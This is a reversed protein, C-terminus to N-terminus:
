RIVVPLYIVGNVFIPFTSSYGTYHVFIDAVSNNDNAVLNTANSYFTVFNGDDSIAVRFSSGDAETGDAAISTRITQGTQRDRVFIDRTANSDNNVLNTADSEFAVYRGNWSMAVYWSTDNGEINNSSLSVRTLSTAGPEDFIGDEDADRDHVFVDFSNNTDNFVLNSAVSDFAVYRGDGGIAPDYSHNNAQLGFVSLSVRVPNWGNSIFIDRMNNTDGSVLNTAASDFAVYFGNHSIAPSTSSANGIQNSDNVSIDQTFNSSHTFVDWTSNTDNSVLNSAASDFAVELGDRAVSPETSVNNGEECDGFQESSVSSRITRGFNNHLFVDTLNNTDLKTEDCGFGSVGVLNTADSQFAVASGDPAIAPSASDNNGQIGNSNVSVLETEGTTLNHVFIDSSSNIDNPVLNSADSQFAILRGNESIDPNHSAGNAVQGSSSVSVMTTGKVTFGFSDVATGGSDHSYVLLGDNVDQQSFFSGILLPVGNLLLEGQAPLSTIQYVVEGAPMMGFGVNLKDDGITTNAGSNARFENLYCDEVPESTLGDGAETFVVEDGVDLHRSWLLADIHYVYFNYEFSGNEDLDAPLPTGGQYTMTYRKTAALLPGYATEKEYGSATDPDPINNSTHLRAGLGIITGDGDPSNDGVGTWYAAIMMAGDRCVQDVTFYRQDRFVWAAQVNRASITVFVGITIIIFLLKIRNAPM